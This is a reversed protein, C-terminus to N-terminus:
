SAAPQPLGPLLRLPPRLPPSLGPKHHVVIRALEPCPTSSGAIRSPGVYSPHHGQLLTFGVPFDFRLPVFRRGFAVDHPENYAHHPFLRKHMTIKGAPVHESDVAVLQFFREWGRNFAPCTFFLTSLPKRWHQGRKLAPKGAKSGGTLTAQLATCAQWFSVNTV